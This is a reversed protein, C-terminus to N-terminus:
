LFTYKANYYEIKSTVLGISVTRDIKKKGNQHVLRYIKMFLYVM